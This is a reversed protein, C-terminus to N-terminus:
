RCKWHDGRRETPDQTPMRPSQDVLELSGVVLRAILIVQAIPSDRDLGFQDLGRQMAEENAFRRPPVRRLMERDKRSRELTPFIESRQKNV